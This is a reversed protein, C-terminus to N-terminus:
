LGLWEDLGFVVTEGVWLEISLLDTVEDHQVFATVADPGELVERAGALYRRSRAAPLGWSGLTERLVVDARAVRDPDSGGLDLTISRRALATLSV